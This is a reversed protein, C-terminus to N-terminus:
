IGFDQERFEHFPNNWFFDVGGRGGVSPVSSIRAPRTDFARTPPPNPGLFDEEPTKKLQLRSRKLPRQSQLVEKIPRFFWYDRPSNIAALKHAETGRAWRTIQIICIQKQLTDVIFVSVKGISVKIAPSLAAALLSVQISGINFYFNTNTTFSNSLFLM